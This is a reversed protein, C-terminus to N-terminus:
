LDDLSGVGLSGGKSGGSALKNYFEEFKPLIKNISENPDDENEAITYSVKEGSPTTMTITRGEASINVGKRLSAPLSASIGEQLHNAWWEAADEETNWWDGEISSPASKIYDLLNIADKGTGMKAMNLEPFNEMVSFDADVNEAWLQSPDYQSQALAADVDDIQFMQAAAGKLFQAQDMITGDANRFPLFKTEKDGGKAKYTFEVGENTRSIDMINPNNGQIFQLASTMGEQNGYYLQALNSMLDAERRRGRAQKTMAQSPAPYRGSVKVKKDLMIRFKDRLVTKAIKEQEETLKPALQGSSPNTPDPALLILSPDDKAKEPDLTFNYEEGTEPNTRVYDTLISGANYPSQLMSDIYDSESRMYLSRAEGQADSLDKRETIDSVTGYLGAKSMFQVEDGLTEVGAELNKAVDFRDRKVKLRNRLSSIDAYDSPDGSMGSLLEGSEDTRRKGVYVKFTTPDVYVSSNNFNGFGEILEMEFQEQKSSTGDNLRKMKEDFEANYENLLTHLNGVGDHLNQRSIRYDRLSMQGSKLLRDQLLRAEAMDSAANMAWENLSTNQGQPSNSITNGLEQSEKDIQDKLEERRVREENLTSSVSNAIAGWDLISKAQRDAYKYYM